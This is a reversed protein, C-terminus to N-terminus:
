KERTRNDAANQRNCQEVDARWRNQKDWNEEDIRHGCTGCVFEFIKCDKRAPDIDEHTFVKAPEAQLLSSGALLGALSVQRLRYRM